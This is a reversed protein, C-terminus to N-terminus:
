FALSFAYGQCFLSNKCKGNVVMEWIHCNSALVKLIECPCYLFKILIKIAVVTFLPTTALAPTPTNKDLKTFTVLLGWPLQKLKSVMIHRRAFSLCDSCCHLYNHIHSLYLSLFLPLGQLQTVYLDYSAGCSADSLAM